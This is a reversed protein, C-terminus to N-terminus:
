YFKAGINLVTLKNFLKEYFDHRTMTKGCAQIFDKRDLSVSINLM